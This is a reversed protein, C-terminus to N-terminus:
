INQCCVIELSSSKKVKSKSSARLGQIEDTPVNAQLTFNEYSYQCSERNRPFLQSNALTPVQIYKEIKATMNLKVFRGSKTIVMETGLSHFQDWLHCGELAVNADKAIKM